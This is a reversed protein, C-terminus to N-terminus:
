SITGLYDDEDWTEAEITGAELDFAIVAFGRLKGDGAFYVDHQGQQWIPFGLLLAYTREIDHLWSREGACAKSANSLDWVPKPRKGRGKKPLQEWAERAARDADYGDRWQQALVKIRAWRAAHRGPQWDVLEMAIRANIKRERRDARRRDYSRRKRM